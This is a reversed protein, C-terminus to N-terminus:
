FLVSSINLLFMINMRYICFLLFGVQCGHYEDKSIKNICTVPRTISSVLNNMEVSTIQPFHGGIKNCFARTDIFSMEENSLCFKNLMYQGGNNNCTNWKEQKRKGLNGTKVNNKMNLKLMGIINSFYM